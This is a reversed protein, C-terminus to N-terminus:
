RGPRMGNNYAPGRKKVVGVFQEFRAMLAPVGLLVIIWYHVLNHRIATGYNSTGLAWMFAMSFYLALLLGYAKKIPGRARWWVQLSLTILILRLLSEGMAYTDMLNKVHWPLPEFLYSFVVPVSTLLLSSWSSTDLAVSYTARSLVASERYDIIYDFINGGLLAEIASLGRIDHIMGEAVVFGFLIFLVVVLIYARHRSLHSSAYLRVAAPWFIAIVLIFISYVLLGNHSVALLLVSFLFGLLAVTNKRSHLYLLFYVTSMFFLIQFAERLTISCFVLNTPLLGYVLLTVIRYRSISLIDMIKLLVL